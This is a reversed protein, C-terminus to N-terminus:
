GIIMVSVVLHILLKLLQLKVFWRCILLPSNSWRHDNFICDDNRLKLKSVTLRWNILNDDLQQLTPCNHHPNKLSDYLRLKDAPMKTSIADFLKNWQYVTFFPKFNNPKKELLTFKKQM